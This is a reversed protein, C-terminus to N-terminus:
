FAKVKHFRMISSSIRETYVERTVTSKLLESFVKVFIDCWAHFYLIGKKRTKLKSKLIIKLDGAVSAQESHMLNFDKIMVVEKLIVFAYYM